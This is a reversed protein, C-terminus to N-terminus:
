SQGGGSIAKFTDVLTRAFERDELNCPVKIIEIRPNLHKALEEVFIMDEKPNYLASGERDIASWGKLPVVVKVPGKAKNLKDAYVSAAQILEDIPYRTMARLEDMKFQPGKDYKERNKRTPGSGTLNVVSPTFVVPIERQSLVDMREKGAARNGGFMEEIVGATVIDILGDFFGQGILKEMARESIGQAHFPFINFGEAQMMETVQHACAPTFGLETIAVSKVPLALSTYPVSEEVEGSIVGAVRNVAHELLNNMGTFEMIVQMVLIDMAEFWKNLYAPMAAPTAIVKPMGFPLVQMVQAGLIAMSVGGLAVAGDVKGDALLKTMKARAGATIIETSAFRDRLRRMEEIDKGMLSALEKPTIEAETAAAGGTSVDMIVAKHGRAAIREKLHQLQEAKTDLTGIIVITKGTADAQRAM